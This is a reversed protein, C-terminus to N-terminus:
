VQNQQKYDAIRQRIEDRTLRASAIPQSLEAHYVSHVQQARSITNDAEVLVQDRIPKILTQRLAPEDDIRALWTDLPQIVYDNLGGITHPTEAVLDALSGVVQAAKEGIGFPLWKRISSFWEEVMELFTGFSELANQLSLEITQYFSDVKALQADLWMRGDELVPLHADVDALAQQGMAIGESLTPTGDLLAAITDSVTDLGAEITDTVDVADLQEYLAVLGSLVGVQANADALQLSLDQTAANRDSNALRLSDLERQAADLSAQLRMNEAQAEALRALMQAADQHAQVATQASQVAPASQVPPLPQASVPPGSKFVVEGKQRGALMAAGTGAATAALAALSLNRIFSRRNVGDDQYENQQEERM